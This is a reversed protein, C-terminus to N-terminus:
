PGDFLQSRNGISLVDCGNGLRVEGLVISRDNLVIRDDGDGSYIAIGDAMGILTESPAIGDQRIRILETQLATLEANSYEQNTNLASIIAANVEESGSSLFNGAFLAGGNLTVDM